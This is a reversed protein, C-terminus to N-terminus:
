VKKWRLSKILHQIDLKIFDIVPSLSDNNPKVNFYLAGRVFNSTSDSVFFQYTSAAGEGEINYIMGYVKHEKIDILEDDINTAKPIHKMALNYADDSFKSLNHKIMKYSIHIKGKFTPFDINMWFPEANKDKDPSVKAYVPYEFTFPYTSDFVVYQKKPLDIRYYGKPKPTYDSSAGCSAFFLICFTALISYLFSINNKKIRKM